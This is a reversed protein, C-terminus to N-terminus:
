YLCRYKYICGIFNKVLIARNNIQLKDTKVAFATVEPKTASAVEPQAGKTTCKVLVEVPAVVYKQSKPLPVVEVKFSTEPVYRVGPVYVTFSTAVLPPVDTM